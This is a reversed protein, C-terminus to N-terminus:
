SKGGKALEGAEEVKTYEDVALADHTVIVTLATIGILTRRGTAARGGMGGDTDRGAVGDSGRDTGPNVKEGAGPDEVVLDAVYERVGRSGRSLSAPASAIRRPFRRASTDSSDESSVLAEGGRM